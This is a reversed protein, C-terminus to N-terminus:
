QPYPMEVCLIYRENEMNYFPLAMIVAPRGTCPSAFPKTVFKDYGMEMYLFYDRMSHDMGKVDTRAGGNQAPESEVQARGTLQIGQEDLIFMSLAQGTNGILARLVPDFDREGIRAIKNVIKRVEGRMAEFSQKREGIKQKRTKRFLRYTQEIKGFFMRVPDRGGERTLKTNEDKTYYYGQQVDVRAELLRVSEERSEVCQGIVTFGASDSFNILGELVSSRYSASEDEAFFTRNLKVMDPKVKSFAALFPDDVGLNDICLKIGSARYFDIIEPSLADLMSFPIETVITHMPLGAGEVQQFFYKPDSEKFKLVNMNVNVFLLMDPHLEQIPKFQAIAKKRCLRDIGVQVDPELDPSFLVQPSLCADGKPTRGESFAEFGLIRKTPISVVPQFLSSISERQLVAEVM